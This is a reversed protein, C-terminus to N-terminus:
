AGEQRELMVQLDAGCDSCETDDAPVHGAPEGAKASCDPCPRCLPLGMQAFEPDECIYCGDRHVEKTSTHGDKLMWYAPDTTKMQRTGGEHNVGLCTGGCQKHCWFCYKPGNLREATSM